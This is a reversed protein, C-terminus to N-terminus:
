IIKISKKHVILQILLIATTSIPVHVLHHIIYKNNLNNNNNSHFEIIEM